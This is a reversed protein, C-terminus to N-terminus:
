AEKRTAPPHHTRVADILRGFDPDNLDRVAQGFKDAAEAEYDFDVPEGAQAGAAAGAARDAGDLGTAAEPRVGTPAPMRRVLGHYIAFWLTWTINSAILYLRVRAIFEAPDVQGVVPAPDDLYARVLRAVQDPDYDAEAAIDGLEFGPDNNGSLQYDVIRVRGDALLFNEALLDNHCPVTPGPREALAAEIEAVVPLCDTYGAPIALDHRRCLALLEDLKRFISFDNVFRPGRHLTRCAEAIAPTLAPDRVAAADLTRGDIYELLLAGPMECLVRAGVGAEAARVTNAIEQELPIGLGAEAIRPDLVRLVWQEGKVSDIRAIYHSLGGKLVTHGVECGAWTTVMGLADTLADPM